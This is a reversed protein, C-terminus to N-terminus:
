ARRSNLLLALYGALVGYNLPLLAAWYIAPVKTATWLIPIGFACQLAFFAALLWWFRRTKWHRRNARITDGFVVATVIGFGLWKFLPDFELRTFVAIVTVTCVAGVGALVYLLLDRAEGRRTQHIM